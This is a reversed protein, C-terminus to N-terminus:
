AGGCAVAVRNISQKSNPVGHCTKIERQLPSRIDLNVHKWPWMSPDRWVLLALCSSVAAIVASLCVACAAKLLTLRPLHRKQRNTVGNFHHYAFRSSQPMASPAALAEPLAWRVKPKESRSVTHHTTAHGKGVKQNRHHGSPSRHRLQFRSKSQVTVATTASAQVHRYSRANVPSTVTLTQGPTFVTSTRMVGPGHLTWPINRGDAVTLPPGELLKLAIATKNYDITFSSGRYWIGRITMSSVGEILTPTITLHDDHIRLGGYGFLVTQLFGGAGTIFNTTGGTPQETWVEFPEKVNAFSKNFDAAAKADEGAEIYGLAFSGWTMAPGTEDSVRAYGDLDKLRTRRSMKMGLPFALLVADAQKVKTGWRYGRFEPHMGRAEDFPISMHTATDNWRSDASHGLLRAANTAFQLAQKAAFNTYVSDDSPGAYEDPPIVDLIHFVGNSREAKSVLFDAVSSVLEYGSSNLWSIDGSTDIYQKVALVIDASIHQEFTGFPAKKPCTESGSAASEWAYM